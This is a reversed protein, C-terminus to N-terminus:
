SDTDADTVDADSAADSSADAGGDAICASKPYGAEASLEMGERLARLVSVFEDVEEPRLRFVRQVRVTLYAEFADLEEATAAGDMWGLLLFPHQQFGGSIPWHTNCHLWYSVWSTADDEFQVLADDSVDSVM